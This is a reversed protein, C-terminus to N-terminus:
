SESRELVGEVKELLELPSFPKTIYDDAGAELGEDRDSEQAKATLMVVVTDRTAPDNKIARCVETGDIEPMMVDLLVLAPRERRIAELTERGQTTELIEWGSGDLTMRVLSRVGAEDDAILLKSM